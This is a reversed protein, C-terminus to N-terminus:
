AYKHLHTDGRGALFHSHRRSEPRPSPLRRASRHTHATFAGVPRSSAEGGPEERSGPARSGPAGAESPARSYSKYCAGVQLFCPERTACITFFRGASCSVQAGDGPRSSGRSFSIAVWELSRAQLIGHVSSSSPGCNMRDCLTPCSQAVLVKGAPLLLHGCPRPPLPSSRCPVRTHPHSAEPVIVWSGTVSGLDTVLQVRSM